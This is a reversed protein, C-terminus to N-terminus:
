DADLKAGNLPAYGYALHSTGNTGTYLNITDEGDPTDLSEYGVKGNLLYTHAFEMYTYYADKKSGADNIDTYDLNVKYFVTYDDEDWSSDVKEPKGM